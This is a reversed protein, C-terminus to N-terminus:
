RRFSVIAWAGLIMPPIAALPSTGVTVFGVLVLAIATVAIFLVAASVYLHTDSPEHSKRQSNMMVM